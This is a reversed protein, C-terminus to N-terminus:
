WVKFISLRQVIKSVLVLETFLRHCTPSCGELEFPKDMKLFISYLRDMRSILTHLFKHAPTICTYIRHFGIGTRSGELTFTPGVPSVAVEGRFQLIVVLRGLPVSSIRSYHVPSICQSDAKSGVLNKREVFNPRKM